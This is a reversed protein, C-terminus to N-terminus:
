FFLISGHLEHLTVLGSIAFENLLINNVDKKFVFASLQCVTEVPHMREIMGTPHLHRKLDTLVFPVSNKTRTYYM